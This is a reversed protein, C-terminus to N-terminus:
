MSRRGYPEFPMVWAVFAMAIYLAACVYIPASTATNAYAAVFASVLGMVRNCGIAIGYGTARHASPLVEPTYAYLTGYYVNVVFYIACTFGLNQTATRVATYAFFFAMSLLAGIVMTYRRGLYKNNCMFGALVPGFIGVTNTIMYNRWTYYPSAEGTRAGRSALFDPLFVYFLPYALGILTWSLWILGTSLGLLRTQFLGKLHAVLESFGYRSNGYTSIIPGCAQLKELTLSTPRNYKNSIYEFIKIVEEDQGKALLYKPTEKMRIVTVRLISCVLVLGGNAFWIYRWGMNSSRPCDTAEECYYKPISLLPWAFGAAVVPALGWWCAMLTIVWQYRGPLFELFLTSDLVLNGGAGFAALCTFLGLVIWNPSAGAVIAFVSCIFLSINFAFKRGIIDASLGWFLAGVLMGTYAAATLGYSFSPHFEKAAQGATVSQLLLILSDAAYGFGNLFFLKLQWGTWGIDDIAEAVNLGPKNVLRIKADLAPDVDNMSYVQGDKVLDDSVHQVAISGRLKGQVSGHREHSYLHQEPDQLHKEPDGKSASIDGDPQSM